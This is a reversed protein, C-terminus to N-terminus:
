RKLVDFNVIYAVHNPLNLTLYLFVICDRTFIHMSILNRNVHFVHPIPAHSLNLGKVSSDEDHILSM